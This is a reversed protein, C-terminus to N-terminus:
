VEEEIWRDGLEPALARQVNRLTGPSQDRDAVIPVTLGGPTRWKEHSGETGVKTCGKEELLKRLRKTRLARFAASCNRATCTAASSLFHTSAGAASASCVVNASTFM